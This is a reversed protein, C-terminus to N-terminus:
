RNTQEDPTIGLELLVEDSLDWEQRTYMYRMDGARDFVFDYGEQEAVKTVAEMVRRQVPELLEKQRQFYEGDPGFKQKRFQDRQRIKNQIEKMKQERVEDTYLIEKAEFEKQLEDIETNMEELEEKWQDSIVQLRKDIGQYEPLNELIYDSDIYGTKQDQAFAPNSFSVLLLIALVGSVMTQLYRGIYIKTRM